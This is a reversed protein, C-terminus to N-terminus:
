KLLSKKENELEEIQKDIETKESELTANSQNINTLLEDLKAIDVKQKELDNIENGLKENEIEISNIETLIDSIYNELRTKEKSISVLKKKEPNDQYKALINNANIKDQKVREIWEKLM